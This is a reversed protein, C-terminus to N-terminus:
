RLKRLIHKALTKSAYGKKLVFEDAGPLLVKKKKVSLRSFMAGIISNQQEVPLDQFAPAKTVLVSIVNAVWEAFPSPPSGDSLIRKVAEEIRGPTVVGHHISRAVRGIANPFWKAKGLLGAITTV